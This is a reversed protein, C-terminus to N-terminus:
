RGASARDGAALFPARGARGDTDPCSLVNALPSAFSVSGISFSLIGVLGSPGRTVDMMGTALSDVLLGFAFTALALYVGCLRM